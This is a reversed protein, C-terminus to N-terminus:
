EALDGYPNRFAGNTVPDIRDAQELAWVVWHEMEDAPMPTPSCENAAKAEAVYSRIVKAKRFAEAEGLLREVRKRELKAQREREKREAEERERRRREILSDRQDFWQQYRRLKDDRYLKEGRVIISIAIERCQQELRVEGDQWADSPNETHAGLYVRIKDSKKVKAASGKGIRESVEFVEAQFAVRQHGVKVVFSNVLRTASDNIDGACGYAATMFMISSVIKLRRQEIASEYLPKEWSLVYSQGASKQRREDDKRLLKGVAPHPNTHTKPIVLKKFAAEVQQRVADLSEEFVPKAPEPGMLEPESYSFWYYSQRYPDGGFVIDEAIGPGRKTLPPQFRKTKGEKKLWYGQQPTPVQLEKCANRITTTSFGIKDALAIMPESWVLDYLERRTYRNSQTM